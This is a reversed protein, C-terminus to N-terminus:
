GKKKRRMLFYTTLGGGLLAVTAPEPNHFPRSGSILDSSSGAGSSESPGASQSLTSGASIFPVGRATENCGALLVLASLLVFIKVM